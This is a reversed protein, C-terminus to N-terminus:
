DRRAKVYARSINFSLSDLLRINNKAKELAEDDRRSIHTSILMELKKRENKIKNDLIQLNRHGFLSLSSIDLKGYDQILLYYPKSEIETKIDQPKKWQYRIFSTGGREVQIPVRILGPGLKRGIQQKEIFNNIRSIINEDM